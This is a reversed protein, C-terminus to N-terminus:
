REDPEGWLIGQLRSWVSPAREPEPPKKGSLEALQADRRSDADYKALESLHHNVVSEIFSQRSRDSMSAWEDDSVAPAAPPQNNSLPPTNGKVAEAIMAALETRQEETFGTELTNGDPPPQTSRTMSPLM